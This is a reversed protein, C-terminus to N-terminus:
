FITINIIIFIYIFSFYCMYIIIIPMLLLPCIDFMTEPSFVCVCLGGGGLFFFFFCALVYYSYYLIFYNILQFFEFLCDYDISMIICAFGVCCFMIIFIVLLCCLYVLTEYCYYYYLYLCLFVM